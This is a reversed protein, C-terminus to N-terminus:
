APLLTLPCLSIDSLTAVSMIDGVGMKGVERPFIPINRQLLSGERKGRM